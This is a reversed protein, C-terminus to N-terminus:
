VASRAVNVAGRIISLLGVLIAGASVLYYGGTAGSLAVVYTGATIAVGIVLLVSGYILQKRGRSKRSSKRAKKIANEVDEVIKASQAQSVGSKVLASIIESKKRGLTFQRAVYQTLQAQYQASTRPAPSPPMTSQPHQVLQSVNGSGPTFVPAAAQPTSPNLNLGCSRCFVADGSVEKGCNPCFVLSEFFNSLEQRFVSFVIAM